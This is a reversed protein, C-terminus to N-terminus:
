CHPRFGPDAPGTRELANVVWQLTLASLVISLHESVHAPCADQLLVNTVQSAPGALFASTYPTVVEDYRTEVVTYDVGPEVEHGANLNLLFPSGAAQDACAPCVYGAPPALPNTTGHNSPAIGVLDGVKAAGGLFRIYYRPMMGGQSHGVLDARSAGTAALVGDVFIKLQQASRDPHDMGPFPNPPLHGYELAFVCFGKSRLAQSMYIWNAFAVGFTGHVLILPRPHAASPECNWDNAGIVPAAYRKAATVPDDAAWSTGPVCVLVAASMVASFLISLLHSVPLDKLARM